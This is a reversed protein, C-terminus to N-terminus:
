LGSRGDPTAAYHGGNIVRNHYGSSGQRQQGRVGVHREVNSPDAMHHQCATIQVCCSIEIFRAEPKLHREMVTLPQCQAGDLFLPHKRQHEFLYRIVAGAGASTHAIAHEGIIIQPPRMIPKLCPAGICAKYVSRKLPQGQLESVRHTHRNLETSAHVLLRVAHALEMGMGAALQHIKVMDLNRSMVNLGGIAKVIIQSEPQGFICGSIAGVLNPADPQLTLIVSLIHDIGITGPRSQMMDGVVRRFNGIHHMTRIHHRREPKGFRHITRGPPM